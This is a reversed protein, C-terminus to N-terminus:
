NEINYPLLWGNFDYPGDPTYITSHPMLDFIAYRPIAILQANWTGEYVGNGMNNFPLRVYYPPAVIFTHLFAHGDAVNTYLTVTVDELAQFTILDEIDYYTNLPDTILLDPYSLSSIRISDIMVTNLTDSVGYALSITNLTWGRYEDDESGTRLFTARIEATEELTKTWLVWPMTDIQALSYFYGFNGRSYSVWASDEVIQIDIIPDDHTQQGRWWIVVTDQDKDDSTSDVETNPNFWVTDADILDMIADEDTEKACQSAIVALIMFAAFFLKRNM